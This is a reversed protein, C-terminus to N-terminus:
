LPRCSPGAVLAAGLKLLVDILLRGGQGDNLVERPLQSLLARMGNLHHVCIRLLLAERERSLVRLLWCSCEDDGLFELLRASRSACISRAQACGSPLCTLPM